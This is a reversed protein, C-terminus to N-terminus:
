KAEKGLASRAESFAEYFAKALEGTTAEYSYCGVIFELASKYADREQEAKEGKDANENMALMATELVAVQKNLMIRAADREAALEQIPKAGNWDGPEGTKGTCAQYCERVISAQTRAEQKWQQAQQLVADREATVIKLDALAQTCLDATYKASEVANDRAETVADLQDALGRLASATAQAMGTSIVLSDAMNRAQELTTHTM